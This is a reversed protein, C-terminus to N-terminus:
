AAKKGEAKTIGTTVANFIRALRHRCEPCIKLHEKGKKTIPKQELAAGAIADVTLHGGRTM